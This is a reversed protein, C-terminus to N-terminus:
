ADAPATKNGAKEQAIKSMADKNDALFQKLQPPTHEGVVGNLEEDAVFCQLSTDVAMGFVNMVLRGVVNGIVLYIFCAGYPTSLDDAFVLTVLQYGFYTTFVMIFLVGFKRVFPALMACVAIRGANRFILWFADKAAYCFKKGLIAIQIYANKNLFKVCKEVCWILYALCRFVLELAKNKARKQQEALYELYYKVLQIIAVILSGLAVSGSHYLATNKLGIIVFKPNLKSDNKAFYWFAVAGAISCQTFAISFENVWLINFLAFWFRYNEGLSETASARCRFVSDITKSSGGMGVMEGVGDDGWEAWLWAAPSVGSLTCAGPEGSTVWGGETGYADSYTYDGDVYCTTCFESIYSVIYLTFYVWITFYAFVFFLQSPPIALCYPQQTVFSAAVENLAIALRIKNRICCILVAYFLAIGAVVASGIYLAYQQTEDSVKFGSPCPDSTNALDTEEPKACEQSSYYMFLAGTLLLFQVAALSGWVIIGIMFRLIVLYCMAIVVSVFGTVIFTWWVMQIDTFAAELGSTAAGVSEGAGAAVSAAADAGAELSEATPLCYAGGYEAMEFLKGVGPIESDAPACYMSPYPCDAESAAPVGAAEAMIRWLSQYSILAAADAQGNDIATTYATNDANFKAHDSWELFGKWWAKRGSDTALSCSKTCIPIFYKPLEQAMSAPNEPLVSKMADGSGAAALDSTNMSALASLSGEVRPDGFAQVAVDQQIQTVNFVYMVYPYESLDVDKYLSPRGKAGCVNGMFDAGNTLRRLDGGSLAQFSVIFFAFIHVVFLIIFPIDRCTRSGVPGESCDDGSGKELKKSEEEGM